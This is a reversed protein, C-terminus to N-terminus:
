EGKKVWAAERKDLLDLVWNLINRMRRISKGALQVEERHDVRSSFSVTDQGDHIDIRLSPYTEVDQLADELTQEDPQQDGDCDFLFDVAIYDTTGESIWERKVIM